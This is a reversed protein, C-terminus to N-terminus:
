TAHKCLFPNATTPRDSPQRTRRVKSGVFKPRTLSATYMGVSTVVKGSSASLILATTDTTDGSVSYQDSIKRAM